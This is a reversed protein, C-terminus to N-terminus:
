RIKTEAERTSLNFDHVMIDPRMYYKKKVIDGFVHGYWNYASAGWKSKNNCQHSYRSDGVHKVPM